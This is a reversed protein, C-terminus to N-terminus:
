ETEDDESFIFEVDKIEPLAGFKGALYWKDFPSDERIDEFDQASYIETAGDTQKSAFWIQDSRFMDRDILNAEHSSFIIQGNKKNIKSNNFLSVLFRAVKPHLSNDLEDFFVISGEELASLIYAGLAFLVNTGASEERFSFTTKQIIEGKANRTNHISFLRDMPSRRFHDHKMYMIGDRITNQDASEDEEPQIEIEEIKTDCAVILKNLKQFFKPGKRPLMDTIIDESLRRIGATTTSSWVKWSLFFAYVANLFADTIDLGFKSLAPQAKFVKIKEPFLSHDIESIEKNLIILDTASEGSPKRKFINKQIKKPFYNLEESIISWQDFAIEYSFKIKDILFVCKYGTASMLTDVQLAFPDHNTVMDGRRVYSDTIISKLNLASKIFNSKGSANAGYMVASRVLTVKSGSNLDVDFTNSERKNKTTEAVMSFTYEDRISRYNRVTFELLM